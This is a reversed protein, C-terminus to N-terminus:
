LPVYSEGETLLGILTPKNDRSNHSIGKSTLLKKLESNTMDEYAITNSNTTDSKLDSEIAESELAIDNEIIEKELSTYGLGRYIIRYAKETVELIKGDKIVVM